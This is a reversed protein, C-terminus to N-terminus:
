HQLAAKKLLSHFHQRGIIHRISEEFRQLILCCRVVDQEIHKDQGATCCCKEKYRDPSQMALRCYSSRNLLSYLLSHWALERAQRVSEGKKRCANCRLSHSCQRGSRKIRLANMLPLWVRILRISSAAYSVSSYWRPRM